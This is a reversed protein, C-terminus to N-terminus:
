NRSPCDATTRARRSTCSPTSVMWPDLMRRQLLATQLRARARHLVVKANGYSIDLAAALEAPGLGLHVAMSVAAADRGSLTAIGAEIARALDHVEAVLEPSDACAPDPVQQEDLPETLERTRVRLDDIAAHRAIQLLWPRFQSPERLDALKALARTFTEQALDRQRERDHVNDSLALRVARVHRQYLSVFAEHSGARARSVLEADPPHAAGAPHAPSDPHM